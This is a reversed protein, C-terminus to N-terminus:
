HKKAGGGFDDPSSLKKATDTQKINVNFEKFDAHPIPQPAQDCGIVINCIGVLILYIAIGWEFQDTKETLILALFILYIGKGMTTNLFNFYTRVFIGFKHEPKFEGIAM